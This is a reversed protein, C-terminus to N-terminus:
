QLTCTFYPGTGFPMSRITKHGNHACSQSSQSITHQGLTIKPKLLTTAFVGNTTLIAGSACKQQAQVFALAATSKKWVTLAANWWLHASEYSSGHTNLTGNPVPGTRCSLTMAASKFEDLWLSYKATFESETKVWSITCIHEWSMCSYSVHYLWIHSFLCDSFFTERQYNPFEPNKLLTVDCSAYCISFFLNFYIYVYIKSRRRKLAM